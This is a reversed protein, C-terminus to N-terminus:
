ITIVTTHLTGGTTVVRVLTRKGPAVTIKLTGSAPGNNLRLTHEGTALRGRLIQADNPLMLWSRRDANESVINFINMALQGYGGLADGASDSAQKKAVIRLIQRVMMEPLKEQLAKAALAQVDVIPSTEGLVLGGDVTISLPVPAVWPGAYIPFAISHIHELAFLPVKIESKAPAFGQEFFIIVDSEGEAVAPMEVDFRQKYRDYDDTMRLAKALRLVDRQVYLNDPFIELAKKYDIYADNAKGEIEYILGSVYFTYANQFSNKVRGAIAEMSSFTDMFSKNSDAHERGKEEAEALEDEHERLAIQQEENARRVEVLAADLDNSFLYNMAQYQFVFVREYGEGEYPIANDNTLLSAGQATSGSLTIKAKDDNEAFATIVGKFDALSAQADGALLSVRGREMLYLIKDADGDHGSLMEQAKTYQKSVILQKVPQMQAPYSQFISGTACGGLLGVVVVVVLMALRRWGHVCRSQMDSRGKKDESNKKNQPVTMM